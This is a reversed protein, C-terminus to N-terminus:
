RQIYRGLITCSTTVTIDSDIPFTESFDQILCDKITRLLKVSQTSIKPDVSGDANIKQKKQYCEIDFPLSQEHLGQIGDVGSFEEMLTTENLALGNVQINVPASIGPTIELPYTEEMNIENHPTLPRSQSITISTTGGFTTRTGETNVAVFKFATTLKYRSAAPKVYLDPNLGAM